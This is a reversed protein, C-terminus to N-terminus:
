QWGLNQGKLYVGYPTEMAMQLALPAPINFIRLFWYFAGHQGESALMPNIWTGGTTLEGSFYIWGTEGMFTASNQGLYALDQASDVVLLVNNIIGEGSPKAALYLNIRGSQLLEHAVNPTELKVGGPITSVNNNKDVANIPGLAMVPSALVAIALVTITIGLIKTDTHKV